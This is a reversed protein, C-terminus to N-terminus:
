RAMLVRCNVGDQAFTDRRLVRGCLKAIKEARRLYTANQKSVAVPAGEVIQWRVEVYSPFSAECETMKRGAEDITMHSYIARGSRDDISATRTLFLHAGPALLAYKALM